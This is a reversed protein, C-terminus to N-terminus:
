SLDSAGLSNLYSNTGDSRVYWGSTQSGTLATLAASQTTQGTGGNAVPLTGTVGTSLPINTITNSAGSITKNTITQVATTGVVQQAINAPDYTVTQMGGTASNLSTVTTQAINNGNASDAIL